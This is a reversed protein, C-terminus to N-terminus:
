RTLDTARKQVALFGNSRHEQKRVYEHVADEGEGKEVVIDVLGMAHLEEASYIKGSLIM